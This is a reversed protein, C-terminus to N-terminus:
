WLYDGGSDKPETKPKRVRCLNNLPDHCAFGYACPKDSLPAPANSFAANCKYVVEIANDTLAPLGIYACEIATAKRETRATPATFDKPM